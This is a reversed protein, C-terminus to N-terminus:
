KGVELEHQTLRGGWRATDGHGVGSHCRVCSLAQNPDESAPRLESVLGAHCRVCNAELIERGHRQVVIPEAFTQTTFLKGHRYGNEAKVLYKSVFDHPLHCDICVAVAHHSGKQWGDYQPQMIHCNRCASPETGFYSLGEAYRFVYGGLGMATGIGCALALALWRRVIWQRQGPELSPRDRDSTARM